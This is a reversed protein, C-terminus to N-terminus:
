ADALAAAKRLAEVVEEKTRQPADNWEGVFPSGTARRVAAVAERELPGPCRQAWIAGLACHRGDPDFALHQCWGRKEILDAAANLVEAVTRETTATAGM